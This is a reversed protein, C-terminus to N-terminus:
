FSVLEDDNKSEIEYYTYEDDYKYWKYNARKFRLMHLIESLASQTEQKNKNNAFIGGTFQITRNGKGFVETEINEVWLKKNVIKGYAKRFNPFERIQVRKTKKELEIGLNKIEHNESTAAENIIKSWAGFIAIGIQISEISEQYETFDIGKDISAIERNLQEILDIETQKKDVIPTSNETSIQNKPDYEYENKDEDSGIAIFLFGLVILASFLHQVRKKM